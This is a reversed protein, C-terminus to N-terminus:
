GLLQSQNQARSSRSCTYTTFSDAAPLVHVSSQQSVGFFGLWTSTFPRFPFVAPQEDDIRLRVGPVPVRVAEAASMKELTDTVSRGDIRFTGDARCCNESSKKHEGTRWNTGSIHTYRSAHDIENLRPVLTSLPKEEFATIRTGSFFLSKKSPPVALWPRL